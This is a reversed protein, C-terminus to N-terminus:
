VVFCLSGRLLRRVCLKRALMCTAPVLTFQLTLQLLACSLFFVRLALLNLTDRTERRKEQVSGLFKREDGSPVQQM